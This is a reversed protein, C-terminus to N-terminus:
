FIWSHKKSLVCVYCTGTLELSLDYILPFCERPLSNWTKATCPFFNNLYVDEYCRPITVSFGHLIDSYLTSWTGANCDRNFVKSIDLKIYGLNKVSNPMSTCPRSKIRLELAAARTTGSDMLLGLLEIVNFQWFTHLQDPLGSVVGFVLLFPWM